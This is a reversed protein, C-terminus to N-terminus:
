PGGPGLLPVVNGTQYMAAIRDRAADGIRQGDAQVIDALFEEEYSRIGADIAEFKARIVLKLARWASRVAEDHGTDTRFKDRQPLPLRLRAQRLGNGMEASFGVFAIGAARDSGVMIQGAGHKTLLEEIEARTQAVPVRTREAYPM